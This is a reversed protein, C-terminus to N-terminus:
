KEMYQSYHEWSVMSNEHTFLPIGSNRDIEIAMEYPKPFRTTVMLPNTKVLFIVPKLGMIKM